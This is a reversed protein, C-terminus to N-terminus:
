IALNKKKKKPDLWAQLRKLEQSTEGKFFEKGDEIMPYWMIDHLIQIVEKLPNYERCRFETCCMFILVAALFKLFPFCVSVEESVM